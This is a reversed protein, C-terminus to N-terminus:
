TGGPSCSAATSDLSGFAKGNGSQIGAVRSLQKQIEPSGCDPCKIDAIMSSVPVWEEFPTECEQCIFTFMPM